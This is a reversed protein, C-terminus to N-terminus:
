AMRALLVAIILIAVLLALGAMALLVVWYFIPLIARSITIDFFFEPYGVWLGPNIRVLGRGLARQILWLMLLEILVLFAELALKQGVTVTWRGVAPEFRLLGDGNLILSHWVCSGILQMTGGSAACKDAVTALPM